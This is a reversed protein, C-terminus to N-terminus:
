GGNRKKLIASLPSLRVGAERLAGASSRLIALVGPNQVHGILVASGTRLSRAIGAQFAQAIEENSNAADIFVDRELFPVGLTGAVRAGVTEATTRSDLFFMDRGGLFALVRRMLEEDATARSGMHNNMGVAGPVTAFAAELLRRTEEPRTPRACPALDRTRM